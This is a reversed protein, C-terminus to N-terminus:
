MPGHSSFVPKDRCLWPRPEAALAPIPAAAILGAVLITASIIAKTLRVSEIARNAIM